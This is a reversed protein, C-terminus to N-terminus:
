EGAKEDELREAETNKIFEEMVDLLRRFAQITAMTLPIDTKIDTTNM